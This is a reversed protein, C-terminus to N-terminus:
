VMSREALVAVRIKALTESPPVGEGAARHGSVIKFTSMRNLEYYTSRSSLAAGCGVAQLM